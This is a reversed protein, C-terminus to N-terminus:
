ATALTPRVGALAFAASPSFFEAADIARLSIANMSPKEASGSFIDSTKSHGQPSGIFV